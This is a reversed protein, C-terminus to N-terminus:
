EQGRDAWKQATSANGHETSARRGAALPAREIDDNWRRGNLYVQAGPIFKGGDKIWGWHEAKRTNVDKVITSAYEELEDRQWTAWAEARKSRKGDPYADWFALFGASFSEEGPRARAKRAPKPKAPVQDSGPPNGAPKEPNKKGSGKPRGGNKGNQRSVDGRAHYAAIEEDIRKQRWVDGDRNFFLGLVVRVEDLTCRAILHASADPIPKEQAYYHDMLLSYIGHQHTTLFGADRHYDGVHRQYYHM